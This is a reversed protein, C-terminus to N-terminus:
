SMLVAQELILDIFVIFSHDRSQGLVLWPEVMSPLYVATRKVSYSCMLECM